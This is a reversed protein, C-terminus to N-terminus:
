GAINPLQTMFRGLSFILIQFAMIHDAGKIIINFDKNGAASTNDIFYAAVTVLRNRVIRPLCIRPTGM